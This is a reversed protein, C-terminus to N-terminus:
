VDFTTSLPLCTCIYPSVVGQRLNANIKLMEKGAKMDFITVVFPPKGEDQYLDRIEPDTSEIGKFVLNGSGNRIDYNAPAISDEASLFSLLIYDFPAAWDKFM